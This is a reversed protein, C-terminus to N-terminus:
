DDNDNDDSQQVGLPQGGAVQLNGVFSAGSDSCTLVYTNPNETLNGLASNDGDDNVFFTWAGNAVMAVDDDGNDDDGDFNGAAVAEQNIVDGDPEIENVFLITPGAVRNPFGGPCTVQIANPLPTVAIGGGGQGQFFGQGAPANQAQAAQANNAPRRPKRRAAFADPAILLFIVLLPMIKRM